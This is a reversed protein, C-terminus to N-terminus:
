CNKSGEFVERLVSQMLQESHAQSQQEEQDLADCLGMLASVKNEFDKIGQLINDKTVKNFLM